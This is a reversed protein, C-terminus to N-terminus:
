LVIGCWVVGGNLLKWSVNNPGILLQDACFFQNKHFRIIEFTSSSDHISTKYDYRNYLSLHGILNDM